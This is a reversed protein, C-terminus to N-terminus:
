LHLSYLVDWSKVSPVLGSIKKCLSCTNQVFVAMLVVNLTVLHAKQFMSPYGHEKM